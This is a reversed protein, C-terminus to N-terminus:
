IVNVGFEEQALENLLEAFRDVRAKMDPTLDITRGNKAAFMEAFFEKINTTSYQSIRVGRMTKRKAEKILPDLMGYQAIRATSPAMGTANHVVHGMEHVVADYISNAVVKGSKPTTIGDWIKVDALAMAHRDPEMRAVEGLSQLRNTSSVSKLGRRRNAYLSSPHDGWEGTTVPFREMMDNVADVVQAKTEAPLDELGSFDVPVGKDRIPEAAADM